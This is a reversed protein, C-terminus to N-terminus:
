RAADALARLIVPPTMTLGVLTGFLLNFLVFGDVGLPLIGLAASVAGGLPALIAIACLAMVPARLALPRPLWRAFAPVNARDLPPVKGARVRGRILHTVIITMLLTALGSAMILPEILPQHGTMTEPPAVGATWIIATPALANIAVSVITENRVARRHGQEIM